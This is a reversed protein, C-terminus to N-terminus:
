LGGRWHTTPACKLNQIPGPLAPLDPPVPLAPSSSARVSLNVTNRIRSVPSRMRSSGSGPSTRRDCAAPEEARPCRRRARRPAACSGRRRLRTRRAPAASRDRGVQQREATGAEVDGRQGAIVDEIGSRIADLVRHRAQTVLPNRRGAGAAREGVRPLRGDDIALPQAHAHEAVVADARLIGPGARRLRAARVHAHNRVVLEIVCRRASRRADVGEGLGVRELRHLRVDGGEVRLHVHGDDREVLADAVRRRHERHVLALDRFRGDVGAGVDDDPVVGVDRPADFDVAAPRDKM